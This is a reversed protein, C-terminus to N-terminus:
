QTRRKREAWILRVKEAIRKKYKWRRRCDAARVNSVAIKAKSEASHRGHYGDGGDTANLLVERGFLEILARESEFALEESPQPFVLIRARTKPRLIGLKGKRIHNEFARDGCGKGVYYPLGLPSLWVYSYFSAM